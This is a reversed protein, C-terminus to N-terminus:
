NENSYVEDFFISENENGLIKSITSVKKNKVYIIYDINSCLLKMITTYAIEQESYMKFLLALREVANKASDAHITSMFGKHGNNMTLFFPVVEVSRLEGLVMRDPRMRLAYSCFDKLSYSTVNKSLM